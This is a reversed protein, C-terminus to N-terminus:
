NRIKKTLVSQLKQHDTYVTVLDEEGTLYHKWERFAERIALLEKEHIEYNREASNL